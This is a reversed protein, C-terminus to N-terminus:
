ELDDYIFNEYDEMNRHMVKGDRIWATRERLITAPNGALCCNSPFRKKCVFSNAGVTSGSGIRVGNILTVRMGVWVHEGLVVDRNPNDDFHEFTKLDIMNHSNGARIFVSYSVMCDMGLIIRAHFSAVIACDRQLSCRKDIHIEGGCSARLNIFSDFKCKDKIIITGNTCSIVVKEGCSVGEGIKVYSEGESTIKTKEDLKSTKIEIKGGIRLRVLIPNTNRTTLTNGYADEYNVTGDLDVLRHPYWFNVFESYGFEDLKSLVDAHHASLAVYVFYKEEQLHCIEYVPLKNYECISDAKRDVYGVVTCGWEKFMNLISDSKTSAGWIIIKHKYDSCELTKKLNSIWEKEM